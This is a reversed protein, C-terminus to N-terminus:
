VLKIHSYNRMELPRWFNSLHKLPVMIEVEKTGGDATKGTIKKFKFSASNNDDVHFSKM